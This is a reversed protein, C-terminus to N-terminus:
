VKEGTARIGGGGSIHTVNRFGGKEFWELVENKTHRTMFIPHLSTFLFFVNERLSTRGRYFMKKGLYLLPSLGWCIYLLMGRPIRHSIRLLKKLRVVFSPNDKDPVHIFLKGSPKVLDSLNKVQM